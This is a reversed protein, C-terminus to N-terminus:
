GSQWTKQAVLLWKSAKDRSMAGSPRRISSVSLKFRGDLLAWGPIGKNHKDSSGKGLQAQFFAGRQRSVSHLAILYKWRSLGCFGTAYSSVRYAISQLFACLKHYKILGLTDFNPVM